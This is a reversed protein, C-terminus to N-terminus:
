KKRLEYRFEKNDEYMLATMVDNTIHVNVWEEEHGEGGFETKAYKFILKGQATMPGDESGTYIYDAQLYWKGSSDGEPGGSRAFEGGKKFNMVTSAYGSTIDNVTESGIRRVEAKEFRWAGAIDKKGNEVLPEKRCSSAMLSIFLACFAFLLTNKM